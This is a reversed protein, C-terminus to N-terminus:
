ATRPISVGDGTVPEAFTVTPGDRDRTTPALGFDSTRSPPQVHAGEVEVDVQCGYIKGSANKQSVTM